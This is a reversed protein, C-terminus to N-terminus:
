AIQRVEKKAYEGLPFIINRLQKQGLLSLFYSQDKAQAVGKLLEYRKTKKYKRIRAYHGTAVYKIGKERAFDFLGQFKVFQNCVLCPSPTRNNKLESLFYSIVKENFDSRADVVYYPVKLKQCIKKAITFGSESCCINERLLNREDEWVSYMFSVGIPRFGQKKLLALSVLSDVGGSLGVVVRKKNKKKM